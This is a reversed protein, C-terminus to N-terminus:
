HSTTSLLTQRRGIAPATQAARRRDRMDFAILALVGILTVGSVAAGLRLGPTRYELTVTHDGAAPVYVAGGVHDARLLETEKGDITATWGSRDLSDAIVVWGAGDTTVKITTQDLDNSPVVEITATAGPTAQGAPEQELVVTEPALEGSLLELRAESNDAIVADNAWRIRDLASEREILTVNGTQVVNLGDPLPRLASVAIGGADDAAFTARGPQEDAVLELRWTQGPQLEDADFPIFTEGDIRRLSFETEALVSGQPDVLRATLPVGTDAPLEAALATLQVGRLPGTFEGSTITSDAELDVTTTGASLAELRGPVSNTSGIALYRVSLRDLIPSEIATDLQDAPIHPYTATVLVKPYVQQLMEKWRGTMFAHGLVDRTKYVTSAGTPLAGGLALFRDEGLHEQLFTYAEAPAYYSEPKSHPWWARVILLSPVAMVAILGVAVLNQFWRHQVLMILAGMALAVAAFVASFQFWRASWEPMTSGEHAVYAAQLVLVAFVAALAWGALDRVVGLPAPLRRASDAGTREAHRAALTHIRPSMLATVGYAALVAVGFGFVARLRGSLSTSMTPLLQIADLAPGGWYMAMGIVAVAIAFFWMPARSVQLRRHFALALLACIVVVVGLYSLAEVPNYPGTFNKMGATGLVYPLIATGFAEPTLSVGRYNRVSFDLVDKSNLYFPLLAVAALAGASIMGAAYRLADGGFQRIAGSERWRTQTVARVIGYACTLYATHFVLAPFGGLWMGAFALALPWFSFWKRHTVAYDTAWFALPILAAVRTQPWNTWAIMFGSSCFALSALPWTVPPLKLRRLFLSMGLAVVAFELVKVLAPAIEAPAIWWPLSLPSMLGTNPLGAFEEGGVVYPSWEPFDGQHLRDAFEISRPIVADVTDGSVINVLEGDLTANEWYAPARLLMDTAAFVKGSFFSSIVSVVVFGIYVAWGLGVAAASFRRGVRDADTEFRSRDVAHAGGSKSAPRVTSSTTVSAQVNTETPPQETAGASSPNADEPETRSASGDAM